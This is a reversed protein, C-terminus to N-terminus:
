APRGRFLAISATLGHLFPQGGVPGIEGAAFFGATPLDGLSSHVLGVDHHPRGFLRSGRGNCSFLMSGLPTGSGASASAERDLLAGLEESAAEADRVMFQITQGARVLDGILLGQTEPDIGLVNRVLFDGQEFSSKREDVVRGVHLAKQMLEQEEPSVESAVSQLAELAPKGGLTLIANRDAATIVLHSGVPRCGQSVVADMRVSGSIAVVLTGEDYVGDRSLLNASGPGSSGSAMGGVVVSGPYREHFGRLLDDPPTTYPDALLMLGAGEPLSDPWGSITPVDSGGMSLHFAQLDAGPWSAGWLTLGAGAEVEVSEGIVGMAPCGMLVGPDLRELLRERILEADHAHHPTFYVMLLDPRAGGLRDSFREIVGDLASAIDPSTTTVVACKV